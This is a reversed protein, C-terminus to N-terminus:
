AELRARVFALAQAAAFESSETDRRHRYELRGAELGREAVVLRHPIGLLEADAFKVGPRADRDDYLVEIGAAGLEAYLHDSVERVRASKQLNLPVLVVQFPAIPAPWIIGREDHNQEIAAAVIRTVGIGYCGMLLTVEKGAEDLVVAKMPASYKSGLQFIHGVEIGRASKLRGRGSPSPDGEVVNRVDAAVAGTVDREWNVGTLHLDKQNAGCVFDALAFASHDAYIRCKLGVLGVYGPETGTAELVREASALALPSAVGPLKQAKVANLEHDGRVVLAVVEAPDRGEVILTKVCREPPVQLFRALDAITRAGPTAVKRLAERPPPRPERPPLAAAAELNAAYDDADSFVIADEGSAALVHFEQSVDGGIAGSEARVARFTLGTRTFIRTYADYMARYGAQLSAQDIHFSYADKMIFERARMVGFRPRVEDRFKTQIQYFNVPLQRYSRLERRVIDTIVEEHTPGAVFDREHRDKIRLLEPGYETWRGSEQWLEAPQVVPMVLELAGARNMEERVIREVKQLVRLGMPLWSYLGAALRRILGARLMLQHSVVEAEAPTEKMTNIPYRSLRM